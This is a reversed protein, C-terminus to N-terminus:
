QYGWERLIPRVEDWTLGRLHRLRSDEGHYTIVLRKLPHGHMAVQEGKYTVTMQERYKGDVSDYTHPGTYIEQEGIWRFGSETKRFAITRSTRGYIHLMQDYDRQPRREWTVKADAQIPTFGLSARDVAAVADLLPKIRSDSLSAHEPIFGCGAFFLCVVLSATARM